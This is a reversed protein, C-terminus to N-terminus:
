AIRSCSFVTAGVRLLRGPEAAAGHRDLAEHDRAESPDVWHSSAAVSAALRLAAAAIRASTTAAVSLEIRATSSCRRTDV